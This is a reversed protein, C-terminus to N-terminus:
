DSMCDGEWGWLEVESGGEGLGLAEEECGLLKRRGVGSSGQVFEIM